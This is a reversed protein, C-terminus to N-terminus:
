QLLRVRIFRPRYISAHDFHAFFDFTNVNYSVILEGPQSLHPHAKANYAYIDPDLAPEPATWLTQRAGFPGVPSSGFAAVVDPSLTDRQYVAVVRGDALPTVSFESSLRGTIPAASAISPVWDAGDWYRWAAFDAFSEPPVRAALMRKSLPDNQTGYVYIYGDPATSGAAETNAMVAAGFILEGRGDGPVLYLPADAQVQDEIPTPSDPDLTILAVGDVAFNFVGGDGERMRLAFIYVKGGLALGDMLWYWDGPSSQPTTPVFVAGAGGDGNTRWFFRVREPDPVGAPLVALTNNILETGRRRTDHPTVEGIFTDSFVFLTDTSEVGGASEDGSLPISYIGDAGTWGSSRWFLAEWDEAREVDLVQGFAGRADWILSTLLLAFGLTRLARVAMGRM